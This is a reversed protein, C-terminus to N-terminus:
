LFKTTVAKNAQFSFGSGGKKKKRRLQQPLQVNIEIAQSYQQQRAAMEGEEGEEGTSEDSYGELQHVGFM